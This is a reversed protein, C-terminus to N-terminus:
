IVYRECDHLMACATDILQGVEEAYEYWAACAGYGEDDLSQALGYCDAYIPEACDRAFAAYTAAEVYDGTGFAHDSISIATKIRMIRLELVRRLM